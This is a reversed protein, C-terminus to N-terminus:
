NSQETLTSQLMEMMREIDYPKALHGNMGAEIAVKRDEEFANATLAIIPINAKVPDDLARIEKSAQYGDMNPMQIDMLIVDYYGAPQDKIKEVAYTGDGAVEVICGVGELIATAIMQNMENDEALLIRKGTLDVKVEPAEEKDKPADSIRCPIDVIFESGKGEESIVKITGGMMDVINKTIAMGLGTGQIGSVTSSKERTFAEFIKGKFEENMGIGNDKVRFEINTYGEESSPKETASFDIAGGEPTFKMANSLLNLLIQNLRMKDTIIDENVIGATGVSLDQNKEDINPQIITRIDNIVDPLHVDEEELVIKGSEIRSMDLVDNILSLLHQSSVSIKGLYDQVQEKDDINSEALATFGVIANMPTRIDHSMNNLFTTKARNANEAAILADSIVKRQEEKELMQAKSRRADRALFLFVLGIVALVLLAFMWWHDRIVDRLTYSYLGDIYKYSQNQGYESGAISIGRNILKLLGENGIKVGFSRDDHQSLQRLQLDDYTSNKLIDNARLGNLTTCTAEGSIVAQLCEDISDYQTVKADPFNTKVYYYQMNNNKNVAFHSETDDTYEGKFVLNTPASVVASSQYIGNEESYYLGGGVPFAVDITGDNVAKIMDEYGEYGKYTVKINELGMDKLIKSVMDTVIGTTDGKDDKDSYPLYNELFGVKLTDHNKIWAKEDASFARASVSMPYYKTQLYNLFNPEDEALLKQAENLEKLLGTKKKNVCLYYDSKGFTFLPESNEKWYAGDGEAVLVDFKNDDFDKFLADHSQYKIVEAQLGEKQLYKNLVDVMASDLVGIKRGSLTSPETTIDEDNKHKVFLYSENGMPLDPYGIIGAREDRWALGALFDIKGAVLEDYLETYDGYVYEYKWGTYESLKRYYEYAYGTKVAGDKAGEQFVENEYYGVKVTKEKTDASFAPVYMAALFFVAACLLALMKRIRKKKFTLREMM